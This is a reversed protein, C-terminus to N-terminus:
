KLLRDKVSKVNGFADITVVKFARGRGIMAALGGGTLNGAARDFGITVVTNGREDQEIEELLVNSIGQDGFLDHVADVAKGVMQKLEM